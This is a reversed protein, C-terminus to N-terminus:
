NADTPRMNEKNWHVLWGVMWRFLGDDLGVMFERFSKWNYFKEKREGVIVLRLFNKLM